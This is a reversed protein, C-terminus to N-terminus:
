VEYESVDDVMEDVDQKGCMEDVSPESDQVDTHLPTSGAETGVAGNEKEPAGEQDGSEKVVEAERIEDDSRRLVGRVVNRPGVLGGITPGGKGDLGESKRIMDAVAQIEKITKPVPVNALGKVLLRRFYMAAARQFEEPTASVAIKELAALDRSEFATDEPPILGQVPPPIVRAGPEILGLEVARKVQADRERKKPRGAM